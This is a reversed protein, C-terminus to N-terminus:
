YNIYSIEKCRPRYTFVLLKRETLRHITRVNDPEEFGTIVDIVYDLQVHSMVFLVSGCKRYRSAQRYNLRNSGSADQERSRHIYANIVRTTLRPAFATTFITTIM